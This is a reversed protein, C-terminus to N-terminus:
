TGISIRVMAQPIQLEAAIASRHGNLTELLTKSPRSTQHISVTADAEPVEESIDFFNLTRPNILLTNELSGFQTSRGRNFDRVFGQNESTVLAYKQFSVNFRSKELREKKLDTGVLYVRGRQCINADYGSYIFAIYKCARAKSDSAFHNKLGGEQILEEIRKKSNVYLTFDSM